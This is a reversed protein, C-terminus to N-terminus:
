DFKDSKIPLGHIASKWHQVLGSTTIRPASLFSHPGQHHSHLLLSIKLGIALSLKLDLLGAILGLHYSQTANKPM